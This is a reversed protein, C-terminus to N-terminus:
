TGSGNAKSYEPTVAKRCRSSFEDSFTCVTPRLEALYLLAFLVDKM